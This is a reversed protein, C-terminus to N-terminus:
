EVRRTIPRVSGVEREVAARIRKEMDAYTTGLLAMNTEILYHMLKACVDPVTEKISQDQRKNMKVEVEVETENLLEAQSASFEIKVRKRRLDITLKMM